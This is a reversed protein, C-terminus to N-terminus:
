RVRVDQWILKGVKVRVEVRQSRFLLGIHPNDLWLIRALSFADVNYTVVQYCLELSKRSSLFENKENLLDIVYWLNRNVLLADDTPIDGVREQDISKFKVQSQIHADCRHFRPADVHIVLAEDSKSRLCIVYTKAFTSLVWMQCVERDVLFICTVDVIQTSLDVIM